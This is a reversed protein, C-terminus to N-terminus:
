LGYIDEKASDIKPELIIALPEAIKFSLWVYFVEEQNRLDMGTLERIRNMRYKLTNLHVHLIGSTDTQNCGTRVYVELTKLLETDNERDYKGLIELAPHLLSAALDDERLIGLLYPLALDRCRRVGPEASANLAFLAQKYAASLRTLDRVPMSIGLAAASAEVRSFILRIVDAEAGVSALIVIRGEFECAICPVALLRIENLLMKHLTYNRISVSQFTMLVTNVCAGIGIEAGFKEVVAPALTEGALLNMFVSYSSQRLSSSDTFESASACCRALFPELCLCMRIQGAKRPFAMFFGMREGDQGLYMAVCGLGDDGQIFLHQPFDSLDHSVEGQEDVIIGGIGTFGLRQRSIINGIDQRGEMEEMRCSALLFGDIDFVLLTCDLVGGMLELMEGLPRRKASAELLEREFEGYYDFASLVDNLLEEDDAGRCIMQNEGNALLLAKGYRPDQYYERAAGLYIYEPSFRMHSASLFRVGRITMADHLIHCEPQYRELYNAILSMSLKM